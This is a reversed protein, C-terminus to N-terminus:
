ACLEYPRYVEVTYSTEGPLWSVALTHGGELHVGFPQILEPGAGANRYVARGRMHSWSVAHDEGNATALCRMAMLAALWIPTPDPPGDAPPELRLMGGGRHLGQWPRRLRGGREEAM